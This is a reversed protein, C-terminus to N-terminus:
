EQLRDFIQLYDQAPKSQPAYDFLSQQFAAAERVAVAARVAGLYPVGIAAAKQKIMEQLSRSLNSRSEAQTFIIGKIRLAPNSRQIQRATEAMQYMSQVCFSDAHLPIVLGTSAQLANFQLEGAQTPTDIVILDYKRKLPQIATQLRRASGKGSTVTSLNWNAPIVDLGNETHRILDVAKDGQLLGYSGAGKTDTATLFSANGQPDLDILAARLGRYIAAHAIAAATTTKGTGGKQVAVTIIQM